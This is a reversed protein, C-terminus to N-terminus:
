EQAKLRMRTQWRLGDRRNATPAETATALVKKTKERTERLMRKREVEEAAHLSAFYNHFNVPKRATSRTAGGAQKLFRNQSWEQQLEQYRQVRDVKKTGTKTGRTSARSVFSRTSAGLLVGPEEEVDDHEEGAAPEGATGEFDINMEKLIAVVQSDPLNHGLLKLQAKLAQLDIM